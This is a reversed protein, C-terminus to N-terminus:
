HVAPIDRAQERSWAPAARLRHRASELLERLTSGDEPSSAGEAALGARSDSPLGGDIADSLQHCSNSDTQAMLIVMEETRPRFLADSARLTALIIPELERFHDTRALRTGSVVLVSFSSEPCRAMADAFFREMQDLESLERNQDGLNERVESKLQRSFTDSAQAAVMEAIRQHEDSFSDRRTSYLTM